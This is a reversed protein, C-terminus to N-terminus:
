SALAGGTHPGPRGVGSSAAAASRTPTRVVSTVSLRLSAYATAILLPSAAFSAFYGMDEIM